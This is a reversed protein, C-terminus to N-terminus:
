IGAFATARVPGHHQRARRNRRHLRVAVPVIGERTERSARVRDAFPLTEGEELGGRLGALCAARADSVQDRERRTLDPGAEVEPVEVLDRATSVSSPGPATQGPGE